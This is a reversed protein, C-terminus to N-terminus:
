NTCAFLCYYPFPFHFALWDKTDTYKVNRWQGWGWGGLGLHAREDM